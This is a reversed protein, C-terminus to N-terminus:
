VQKRIKEFLSTLLLEIEPKRSDAEEYKKIAYKLASLLNMAQQDTLHVTKM